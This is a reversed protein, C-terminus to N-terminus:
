INRNRNRHANRKGGNEKKLKLTCEKCIRSGELKHSGYAKNKNWRWRREYKNKMPKHCVMCTITDQEAEKDYFTIACKFCCFNSTTEWGRFPHFVDGCELCVKTVAKNLLHEHYVNFTEKDDFM